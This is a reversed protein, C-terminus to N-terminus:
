VNQIEQAERSEIRDDKGGIEDLAPHILRRSQAELGRSEAHEIPHGLRRRHSPKVEERGVNMNKGRDDSSAGALHIEVIEEVQLARNLERRVWRPNNVVAPSIMVIFHRAEDIAKEIEPALKKGASLERSDVWTLEGHLELTERLKKVTDDNKTAHSIFVHQGM